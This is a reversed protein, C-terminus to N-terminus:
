RVGDKQRQRGSSNNGTYKADMYSLMKLSFSFGGEQPLLLSTTKSRIIKLENTKKNYFLKEGDRREISYELSDGPYLPLLHLEFFKASGAPFRLLKGTSDTVVKFAFIERDPNSEALKLIAQNKIGYQTLTTGRLPIGGTRLLMNKRVQKFPIQALSDERFQQQAVAQKTEECGVCPDPSGSPINSLYPWCFLVLGALFLASIFVEGRRTPPNEIKDIAKGVSRIQKDLFTIIAAFVVAIGVFIWTQTEM